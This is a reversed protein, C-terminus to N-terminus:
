RAKRENRRAGRAKKKKPHNAKTRKKTPQPKKEPQPAKTSQPVAPSSAVSQSAITGAPYVHVETMMGGPGNGGANNTHQLDRSYLPYKTMQNVEPATFIVDFTTGPAVNVTNKWYSLDAGGPGRLLRADEGVVRMPIGPLEISHEQYGLSNFRLLVRDGSNAQILSSVPQSPLSPDNDPKITDPYARGNLLWYDPKYSSWDTQGEQITELRKHIGSDMESLFMVFERDFATAPDNYAYKPGLEPRIIITGVMGMQVHEVDEFHCHYPYTGPQRLNYYYTFSRNVPVAFSQEPVGDFVPIANPFGHFHLTHSDDLDPRVQLGLNTLTVYLHEGETAILNPATLRAKGKFNASLYGSIKKNRLTSDSINLISQPITIEDTFGFTYHSKGDPTKIHGDTAAIRMYVNQTAADATGGLWDPFGRRGGAVGAVGGLILAAAGQGGLKLFDRRTFAKSEAKETMTMGKESM